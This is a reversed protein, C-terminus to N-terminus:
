QPGWWGGIWYSDQATMMRIFRGPRSASWGTYDLASVLFAHVSCTPTAKHQLTANPHHEARLKAAFLARLSTSRPRGWDRCSFEPYLVEILTRGIGELDKGNMLPRVIRNTTLNVVFSSCLSILASCRMSSNIKLEAEREQSTESEHIQWSILLQPLNEEPEEHLHWELM